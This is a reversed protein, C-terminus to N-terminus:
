KVVDTAADAATVLEDNSVEEVTAAAMYPEAKSLDFHGQETLCDLVIAPEGDNPLLQEPDTVVVEAVTAHEALPFVREVNRILDDTPTEMVVLDFMNALPGLRDIKLLDNSDVVMFLRRDCCSAWDYHVAELRAQDCDVLRLGFTLDFAPNELASKRSQCAQVVEALRSKGILFGLVTM